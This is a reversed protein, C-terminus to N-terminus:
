SNRRYKEFWRENEEISKVHEPGKFSNLIESNVDCLKKFSESLKVFTSNVADLNNRALANRVDCCHRTLWSSLSTHTRLLKNVTSASDGVPENEDESM